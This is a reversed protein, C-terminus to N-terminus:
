PLDIDAEGEGILERAQEIRFYTLYKPGMAEDEAKSLWSRTMEEMLQPDTDERLKRLFLRIGRFGPVDEHFLYHAHPNVLLNQRTLHDRMIFVLDGNQLLRPKSYIAADVRGHGDATSLVGTGSTKDLYEKLTM